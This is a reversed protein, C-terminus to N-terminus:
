VPPLQVGYAMLKTRAAQVAAAPFRDAFEVVVFEGTFRAANSQILAEFGPTVKPDLAWDTLTEIAGKSAIKRRTYSARKMRGHKERLTEEYAAVAQWLRREVSDDHDYGALEYLRRRCANAIGDEKLRIANALLKRVSAPDMM